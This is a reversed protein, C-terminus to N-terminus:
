HNRADAEADVETKIVGHMRALEVETGVLYPRGVSVAIIIEREMAHFHGHMESEFVCPELPHFM